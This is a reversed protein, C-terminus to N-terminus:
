LYFEDSYHGLTLSTLAADNHKIRYCNDSIRMLYSHVKGLAEQDWSEDGNLNTTSRFTGQISTTVRGNALQAHLKGEM